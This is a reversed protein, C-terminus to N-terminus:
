PNDVIFDVINLVVFMCTLAGKQDPSQNAYLRVRRGVGTLRGDLSPATDTDVCILRTRRSPM